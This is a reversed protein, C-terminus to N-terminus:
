PLATAASQFHRTCEHGARWKVLSGLDIHRRDTASALLALRLGQEDLLWLERADIFPFPIDRHHNLLYEYVIAGRHELM